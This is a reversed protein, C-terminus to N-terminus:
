EADVVVTQAVVDHLGRRRDDVLILLFGAFLPLVALTLGLFRVLAQRPRLGAGSAECVRIGLLRSGPTQGTTAWFTAFYGITWVLYIAGGAAAMVTRLDEPITVVSLTLTILAATIMAVLNILAADLAFAIARTILGVYLPRGLEPAAGDRATPAPSRSVPAPTPPRRAAISM